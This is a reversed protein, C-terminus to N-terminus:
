HWPLGQSGYKKIQFYQLHPDLPPPSLPDPGGRSFWLNYPNRYPVLLQVGGGGQFFNSWRGPFHQVGEPVKFFLCIEKFNVMQSRYFLSLVLFFFLFFLVDYSKKEDSQGPGGGSSFEQIQAHLTLFDLIIWILTFFYTHKQNCSIKFYLHLLVQKM